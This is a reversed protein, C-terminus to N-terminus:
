SGTDAPSSVRRRMQLEMLDGVTTAAAVGAEEILHAYRHTTQTSKHGLLGGIQALSLGASIGASAFSHRLDHIRLDPCGAARRIKGWLKKPDNIGTLTGTTRPLKALVDLAQPSLYIEKAGTKSDLLLIMNGKIQDWRAKAIEDKRAGTLILLQIFASSFLNEREEEILLEAVRSVEAATMYRKRKTEPFRESGRVPNSGAWEMRKIAYNFMASLLALCRNAQVPKHSMGDRFDDVTFPRIESLRKRGFKPDIHLRYADEYAQRTREKRRSVVAAAYREWLDAVTPEALEKERDAMPDGGVAIAALMSRAADRAQALTISGYEGLKPRREKGAKTRYYLMFVRKGAPTVRVQLGRVTADRLVDGPQGAKLNKENLEM